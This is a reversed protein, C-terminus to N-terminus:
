MLSQLQSLEGSNLDSVAWYTVGNRSWSLLNYGKATEMRPPKAEDTPAPWMFVNVVHLRLRYVIAGVRREGIYDLRGGLLPIHALWGFSVIWLTPVSAAAVVALTITVTRAAIFPPLRRHTATVTIALGVAVILPLLVSPVTM